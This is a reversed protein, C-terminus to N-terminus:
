GKATQPLACHAAACKRRAAVWQYLGRLRDMGGPLKSFWILPRAWWIERALAVVADAGGYQGKGSIVLRLERLLEGSPIALLAIVRPDQLPALAINRRNLTPTTWRALKICFQCEADYFLFGRAHMGKSDTLEAALSIM